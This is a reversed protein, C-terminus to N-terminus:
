AAEDQYRARIALVADWDCMFADVCVPDLHTGRGDILFERARAIEWAKKYPRESTLADFVDAVAVIRGHLPISDGRLGEPYGSGDFKEHHTRAIQAGALLVRSSSDKLIRYGIVAHQKMIEFEDTTLRDPKLLIHDPTGLKGIDHMPAASLILQQEEEPLGMRAAILQSYHAMRLIHAGTEPDRYEAARGLCFLTERERERIERTAKAVESALWDARSALQKHSARLDLMNKVRALFEPGDLPKNLFDIAGLQLARHRLERAHNATVMLLPTDSKGAIERFRRAFEMGDIDPMMYDVIVLDPDNCAAWALAQAPETFSQVSYGARKQLLHSMLLVNVPADDVILVSALIPEGASHATAPGGDM